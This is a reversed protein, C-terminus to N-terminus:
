IALPTTWSICLLEVRVKIKYQNQRVFKSWWLRLNLCIFTSQVEFKKDTVRALITLVLGATMGCKGVSNECWNRCKDFRAFLKEIGQQYGNRKETVAPTIGCIRWSWSCTIKALRPQHSLNPSRAFDHAQLETNIWDTRPTALIRRSVYYSFDHSQHLLITINTHSASLTTMCFSPFNKSTIRSHWGDCWLQKWKTILKLRTAALIESSSQFRQDSPSWNRQLMWFLHRIKKVFNYM